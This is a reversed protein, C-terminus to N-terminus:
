SGKHVTLLAFFFLKYEQGTKTTTLSAATLMLGHRDIGASRRPSTRKGRWSAICPRPCRCVEGWSRGDGDSCSSQSSPATRADPRMPVPVSGKPYRWHPRGASSCYSGQEAWTGRSHGSTRTGTSLGVLGAGAGVWAGITASETQWQNKPWM